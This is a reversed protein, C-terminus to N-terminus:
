HRGAARQALDDRWSLPLARLRTARQLRDLDDDKGFYLRNIDAVSIQDPDRSVIEIKSGAELEGEEVVAFYFGSRESALFRKIMDDRNFKITLKFCPLRPQTVMLTASGVKLRDGIYLEEENLGITTLNEGFEGWSFEINPLEEKWYEYHESPYGYIAKAVGGHVSLDAQRDGDLNLTRVVVPGEVPDKFIGTEVRKGKWVVQRPLGINVSLVNM